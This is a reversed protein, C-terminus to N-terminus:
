IYPLVKNPNGLLEVAKDTASIGCYSGSIYNYFSLYVNFIFM